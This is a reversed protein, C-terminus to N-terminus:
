CGEAEGGRVSEIAGLTGICEQCIQAATFDIVLHYWGHRLGFTARVPPGIGTRCGLAARAVFQERFGSALVAVHDGTVSGCRVYRSDAACWTLRYVRLAVGSRDACAALRMRGTSPHRVTTVRFASGHRSGMAMEGVEVHNSWGALRRPLTGVVAGDTAHRPM